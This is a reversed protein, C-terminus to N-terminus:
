SLLAKLHQMNFLIHNQISKRDQGQYKYNFVFFFTMNKGAKFMQALVPIDPSAFDKALLTQSNKQPQCILIDPQMRRHTM